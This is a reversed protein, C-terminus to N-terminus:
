RVTDIPFVVSCGQGSPDNWLYPEGVIFGRSIELYVGAGAFLQATIGNGVCLWSPQSASTMVTVNLRVFRVENSIAFEAAIEDGVSVIPQVPEWRKGLDEESQALQYTLALFAESTFSVVLTAPSVIAPEDNCNQDVGDGPPDEAEPYVAPDKDNCDGDRVAVNAKCTRILEGLGFGDGDEDRYGEVHTADEDVFGNGNNDLGDCIDEADPHFLVGDMIGDGNADEDIIGDGDKDPSASEGEGEGEGEGEAIDPYDTYSDDKLEIVGCGSVLCGFLFLGLKKKM